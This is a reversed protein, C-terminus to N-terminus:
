LKKLKAVSDDVARQAETLAKSIAELTRPPAAPVVVNERISRSKRATQKASNSTRRRKAESADIRATAASRARAYTAVSAAASSAAAVAAAAQASVLMSNGGMPSPPLPPLPVQVSPPFGAAAADAPSPPCYAPEERKIEFSM